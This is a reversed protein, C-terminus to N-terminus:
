QTIGQKERKRKAKWYQRIIDVDNFDDENVWSNDEADYGQWKVYYWRKGSEQKDDLIKEVVYSTEEVTDEPILPKIQSPTYRRPLIIGQSDSLEYSGGRTRRAIRYPGAYRQSTKGGDREEICVMVESGDPYDVMIHNNNFKIARMRQIHENRTDLTPYVLESLFKMREELMNADEPQIITDKYNGFFNFKRGFFLTFPSSQHVTSVKVNTAFQTAPILELWETEAGNLQRFLSEKVVRVYRESIGNARPHYPTILRHDMSAINKLDKIVTNVFEKGNDSQIIRAFGMNCFLEFLQQAVSISDKTKLPRLFVYKTAIDVIILVYNYGEKSTPLQFLDFSIHDMPLSATIPTLPHFGKKMITYRQCQSCQSVFQASDRFLSSWKKGQQMISRALALGGFHGLSHHQELLDKRTQSDEVEKCKIDDELINTQAFKPNAPSKMYDITQKKDIHLLVMKAKANPEVYLTEPIHTLEYYDLENNWEANTWFPIMLTTTKNKEIAKRQAKRISKMIHHYGPKIFNNNGWKEITPDENKKRALFIYDYGQDKKLQKFLDTRAFIIKEPNQKMKESLPKCNLELRRNEVCEEESTVSSSPQDAKELYKVGMYLRSLHDPIVNLIGPLYVVKMGPYEMITDVWTNITRNDDHLEFLWTLANHDTYHTFERGLLYFRFRILTFVIALAEKKTASYRRESPQLSRSAFAIFRTNDKDMTAQITDDVKQFIVSAIGSASADSATYFPKSFDPHHLIPSSVLLKKILEWAEKQEEQFEFNKRVRDLPATVTSYRPIYSRFYNFLGLFHEINSANPQPWSDIGTLKRRDISTGEPLIKHGLLYLCRYGISSKQNNVKFNYETLTDIVAVIHEKHEEISRSYIIIDDVFVMAYGRHKSLVIDMVRQFQFSLIKLGFPSGIWKYHRSDWTFTMHKTDEDHIRFTCFADKLDLTSFIVSGSLREFIDTIKPLEYQYTPMRKNLNRGDFNVRIHNPDTSKLGTIPDKKQVVNLPNNCNSFPIEQVIGKELWESITKTVAAHFREAISYQPIYRPKDDTLHLHVISEPLPCFGKVQSNRKVAEQIHNIIEEQRDHPIAGETLSPPLDPEPEEILNSQISRTPINIHGIGLQRALHVGVYVTYDLTMIDFSYRITKNPIRITLPPTRGIREATSGDGLRIQGKVPIIPIRHQIAYQHDIFSTRGCGTDYFAKTVDGEIEVPFTIKHKEDDESTTHIRRCNWTNFNEHLNELLNLAGKGVGEENEESNFIDSTQIDLSGPTMYTNRDKVSRTGEKLEPIMNDELIQMTKNTITNKPCNYKSHGTEGCEWCKFQRM